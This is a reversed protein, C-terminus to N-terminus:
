ILMTTKRQCLCAPVVKKIINRQKRLGKEDRGKKKSKWKIKM